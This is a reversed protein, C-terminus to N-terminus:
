QKILKKTIFDGNNLTIKIFYVGQKIASTELPADLNPEVWSAVTKGTIDILSINSVRADEIKVNLSENFPMPYIQAKYSKVDKVGTTALLNDIVTKMANNDSPAYGLKKYEIKGETGGTIVITPMGMGGYYEVEANGKDFIQYTFNNNTQWSKLSTCTYVDSYGVQIVKVRGPHSTEYPSVLAKIGNGATICPACNPIMVYEMVVVKGQALLDLVNTNNGNCDARNINMINNQAYSSGFTLAMLACMILKKM